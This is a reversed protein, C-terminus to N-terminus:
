LGASLQADLVTVANGALETREGRPTTRVYGTRASVQLGTLTQRGLRPSWLPALATHASGTVPDEPIGLAPAFMRSVYDYPARGSGRQAAGQGALATVVVGRGSVDGLATLDPTLARVAREDRLEILLDGLPGTEYAAVPEAGLAAALAEPPSTRTLPATPFDLTIEGEPPAIATLVGGRTHFRLTGSAAGDTRLLHATALTAHGCLSVESSPTFWRLAWEAGQGGPLPHAYATESLNLENALKQLGAEAPFHETALLVVAAPNGAYPRDTFADVTRIRM